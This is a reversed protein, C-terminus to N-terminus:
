VQVVVVDGADVEKKIESLREGADQLYRILMGYDERMIVSGVVLNVSEGWNLQIYVPPVYWFKAGPGNVYEFPLEAKLLVGSWSMLTCYQSTERWTFMAKM